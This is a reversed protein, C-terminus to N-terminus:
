RKYAIIFRSKGNMDKKIHIEKLGSEKFVSAIESAFQENIEVAVIGENKLKLQANTAIRKYFILPDPGPAFLATHPEYRLVNSQMKTKEPESIYPPNSVILDLEDQPLDKSLIDHKLFNIEATLLDANRAAVALANESIDTAWVTATPIEEALSIAICGSGTGIDVIKIERRDKFLSLIEGVLEETEPRPILVSSDVYFKRGYFYEENLVYQIPENRNIREILPTLEEVTADVERGFLIDMRSLNLKNELLRLVVQEIEEKSEALRIHSVLEGFLTKSNPM